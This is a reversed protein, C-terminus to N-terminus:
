CCCCRPNPIPTPTPVLEEEVVRGWVGVLPARLTAGTTAALISEGRVRVAIDVDGARCVGVVVVWAAAGLDGVRSRDEDGAAVNVFLAEEGGVVAGRRLM